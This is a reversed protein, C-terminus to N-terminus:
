ARRSATATSVTRRRHAAINCSAKAGDDRQGEADADEDEEDDAENGAVWRHRHEPCVRAIGLENRSQVMLEAEILGDVHLVQAPDAAHQAAIEAIGVPLL